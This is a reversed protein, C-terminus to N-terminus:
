DFVFETSGYTLMGVSHGPSFECFMNSPRLISNMDMAFTASVFQDLKADQM